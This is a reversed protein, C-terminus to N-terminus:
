TSCASAITRAAASASRTSRSRACRRRRRAPTSSPSVDTPEATLLAAAPGDVAALKSGAEVEDGDKVVATFHTTVPAAVADFVARALDLGAVVMPAKALLVGHGPTGQPVTAATTVDGGWSDEITM